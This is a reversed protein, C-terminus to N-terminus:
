SFEGKEPESVQLSKLQTVGVLRLTARRHPKFNRPLYERNFLADDQLLVLQYRSQGQKKYM